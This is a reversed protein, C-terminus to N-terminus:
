PSFPHIVKHKIGLEQLVRDFLCKRKNVGYNTFKLKNDTQITQISIDMHTELDILFRSTNTVRKENIIFLICKRSYEYISVIHYFGIIM